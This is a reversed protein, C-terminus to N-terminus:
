RMVNNLYDTSIGENFIKSVVCSLNKGFKVIKMRSKVIKELNKRKKIQVIEGM